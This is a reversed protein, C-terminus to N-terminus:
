QGAPASAAAPLKSRFKKLAENVKTCAPDEEIVRSPMYWSESDSREAAMYANLLARVAEEIGGDQTLDLLLRHNDDIPWVGDALEEPHTTMQRRLSGCLVVEISDSTPFRAITHQRLTVRTVKGEEAVNIGRWTRVRALLQNMPSQRRSM